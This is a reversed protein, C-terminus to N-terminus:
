VKGFATLLKENLQPITSFRVKNFKSIEDSFATVDNALGTLYLTNKAFVRQSKLDLVRLNKKLAADMIGFLASISDIEAAILGESINIKNLHYFAQLSEMNTDNTFFGDIASPHSRLTDFVNKLNNCTLFAVFSGTSLTFTDILKVEKPLDNLLPLADIESRFEILSFERYNLNDASFNKM